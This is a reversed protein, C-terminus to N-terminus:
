LFNEKISEDITRAMEEPFQSCIDHTSKRFWIVKGMALLSMAKEIDTAKSVSFPSPGGDGAPVFLVPQTILPFRTSPPNDWLDRLLLTHHRFSLRAIVQDVTILTLSPSTRSPSAKIPVDTSPPPSAPSTPSIPSTSTTATVIRHSPMSIPNADIMNSVGEGKVTVSSLSLSPPATSVPSLTSTKVMKKMQIVTFNKLFASISAESWGQSAPCWETRVLKELEEWSMGSFSPPQLEHECQVYDYYKRSLEIYGGDICVISKVITPFKVAIELALNGGYSHGALIIPRLWPNNSESELDDKQPPLSSSAHSSSPPSEKSSLTNSSSAGPLSLNYITSISHTALYAVVDRVDEAFGDLSFNFKDRPCMRSQQATIDDDGCSDGHGRLDVLAINYDRALQVATERMSLRNSGLGHLFLIAQREAVESPIPLCDFQPFICEVTLSCHDKVPVSFVASQVLTLKDGDSM